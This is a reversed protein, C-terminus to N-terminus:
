PFDGNKIPFDVIFQWKGYNKTHKGSPIAMNRPCGWPQGLAAALTVWSPKAM